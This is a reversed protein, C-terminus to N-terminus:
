RRHRGPPIGERRLRGRGSGLGNKIVSRSEIAGQSKCANDENDFSVYSPEMGPLFLQRGAVGFGDDDDEIPGEERLQPKPGDYWPRQLPNVPSGHPRPVPQEPNRPKFQPDYEVEEVPDIGFPPVLKRYNLDPVLMFVLSRTVAAITGM